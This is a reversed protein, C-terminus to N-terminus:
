EGLPIPDGDANIFKGDVLRIKLGHLTAMQGIRGDVHGGTLERMVDSAGGLWRMTGLFRVAGAGLVDVPFAPFMGMKQLELVSRSGGYATGDRMVDGMVRRVSSQPNLARLERNKKREASLKQDKTKRAM